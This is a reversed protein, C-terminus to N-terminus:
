PKLVLRDLRQLAPDIKARLVAERVVLAGMETPSLEKLSGGYDGIATRVCSAVYVNRSM